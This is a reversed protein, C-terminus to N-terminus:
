PTIFRLNRISAEGVNSGLPAGFTTPQVGILVIRPVEENPYFRQYDDRIKRSEAVWGEKPGGSEIVIHPYELTLKDFASLLPFRRLGDPIDRPLDKLNVNQTNKWSSGLGNVGNWTYHLFVPRPLRAFGIIVQIPSAAEQTLAAQGPALRLGKAPPEMPVRNAKWEWCLLTRPGPEFPDYRWFAFSANTCHLMLVTHSPNTKDGDAPDPEVSYRAEGLTRKLYWGALGGDADRVFSTTPPGSGTSSPEPYDMSLLIM